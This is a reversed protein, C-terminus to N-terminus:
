HVVLPDQVGWQQQQQQQTSAATHQVATV